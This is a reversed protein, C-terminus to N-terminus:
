STRQTDHKLFTIGYSSVYNEIRAFQRYGRNKYFELAQWDFTELWIGRAGADVAFREATELLETGLGQKRADEDLIVVNIKMWGLELDANLGGIVKGDAKKAALRLAKVSWPGVVAQALDCSHAYLM